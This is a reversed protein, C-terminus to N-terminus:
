WNYSETNNAINTEMVVSVSTSALETNRRNETNVIVVYFLVLIALALVLFGVVSNIVIPLLHHSRM